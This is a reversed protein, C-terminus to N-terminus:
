GLDVSTAFPARVVLDQILFGKNLSGTIIELIEMELCAPPHRVIRGLSIVGLDFHEKIPCGVGHSPLSQRVEMFGKSAAVLALHPKQIDATACASKEVGYLLHPRPKL